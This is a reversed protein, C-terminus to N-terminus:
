KVLVRLSSNDLEGLGEGNTRKIEMGPLILAGFKLQFM